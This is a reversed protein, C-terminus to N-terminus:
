RRYIPATGPPLGAPVTPRSIASRWGGAFGAAARRPHTPPPPLLREAHIHPTYRLVLNNKPDAAIIADVRPPPRLIAAPDQTVCVFGTRDGVLGALQPDDPVSIGAVLRRLLRDVPQLDQHQATARAQAGTAAFGLQTGSALGAVIFGLITLAM